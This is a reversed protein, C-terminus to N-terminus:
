FETIRKASKDESAPSFNFQRGENGAVSVTNQLHNNNSKKKGRMAEKKRLRKLASYLSHINIAEEPIDIEKALWARFLTPKLRTLEERYTDAIISYVKPKKQLLWDKIFAQLM